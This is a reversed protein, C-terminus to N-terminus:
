DHKRRPQDPNRQVETVLRRLAVMPEEAKMCPGAPHASQAVEYLNTRSTLEAPAGALLLSLSLDRHVDPKAIVETPFGDRSRFGFVVRGDYLRRCTWAETGQPAAAEESGFRLFVSVRRERTSTWRYLHTEHDNLLRQRALRRKLPGLLDDVPLRLGLRWMLLLAFGVTSAPFADVAVVPDASRRPKTGVTVPNGCALNSVLREGPWVGLVDLLEQVEDCEIWRAESLRVPWASPCPRPVTARARALWAPPVGIVWQFLAPPKTGLRRHLDEPDIM